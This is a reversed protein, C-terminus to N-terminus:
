RKEEYDEKDIIYQGFQHEAGAVIDLKHTKIPAAHIDVGKEKAEIVKNWPELESLIDSINTMSHAAANDRITKNRGLVADICHEKQVILRDKIKKILNIASEEIPNQNDGLGRKIDKSM